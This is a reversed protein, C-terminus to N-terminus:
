IINHKHIFPLKYTRLQKTAYPVILYQTPDYRAGKKRGLGVDRLPNFSTAFVKFGTASVKFVFMALKGVSSSWLTLLIPLLLLFKLTTDGRGVSHVATM